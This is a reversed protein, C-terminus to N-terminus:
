GRPSWDPETASEPDQSINVLDTGDRDVVYVNPPGDEPDADFVLRSGDPSWDINGATVGEGFPSEVAPESQGGDLRTFAILTPDGSVTVAPTHAITQGDPSWAPSGGSTLDQVDSGDPAMTKISFAGQVWVLRRGDPSWAPQLDRVSTNTLRVEDSGDADMVYIEFFGGADRSSAFAIKTGDPSWAPQINGGVTTLQVEDSGDVDAAFVNTAGDRQSSFAMRRGDPSFSVESEPFASTTLRAQNQGDADMRWLTPVSSRRVTFGIGSAGGAPGTTFTEDVQVCGRSGPEAGPSTCLQFHYTTEPELGLVPVSVPIPDDIERGEPVQITRDPTQSGYTTTTGYRFWYTVEGAQNSYVVGNLTASTDTVNTAPEPTGISCGSVVLALPLLALVLARRSM